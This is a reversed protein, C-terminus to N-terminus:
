TSVLAARRNKFLPPYPCHIDSWATGLRIAEAMSKSIGYYTSVRKPLWGRSFLLKMFYVEYSTLTKARKGEKGQRSLLGKASADLANDKATGLFLHQPRACPKNDCKHLVSLGGPDGCFLTFSARHAGTQEGNVTAKGYGSPYRSGQWEWCYGVLKLKSLFREVDSERSLM